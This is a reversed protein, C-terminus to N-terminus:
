RYLFPNYRRLPSDIFLSSNTEFRELLKNEVGLHSRGDIKRAINIGRHVLIWLM